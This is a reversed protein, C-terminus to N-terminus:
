TVSGHIPLMRPDYGGEWSGEEKFSHKFKFNRAFCKFVSSGQTNIQNGLVKLTQKRFYQVGDEHEKKSVQKQKTHFEAM